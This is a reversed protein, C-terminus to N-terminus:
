IRLLHGNVDLWEIKQKYDPMIAHVKAWYTKGHNKEVLHVLEHVVVYDIVPIPAMVLRWPFSLTGKASCSGWRTQASTIKVQKFTIGFNASYWDVRESIIRIAQEKYWNIFMSQANPVTARDMFLFEGLELAQNTNEVIKLRYSKGLYWFGEGNVYEKEVAKPYTSHVLEQKARIWRAKKQVVALIEEDKADIPARVVLSGDRKIILAINKRKTHFIRNIKIM